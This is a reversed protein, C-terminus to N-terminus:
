CPVEEGFERAVLYRMAAILATPGRQMRECDDTEGVAGWQHVGDNSLPRASIREREIIPGGHEWNTSPMYMMYVGKVGQARAVWNDLLGGELEATKMLKGTQNVNM